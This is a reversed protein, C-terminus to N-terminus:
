PPDVLNVSRQLSPATYKTSLCKFAKEKPVFFNFRVLHFLAAVGDKWNIKKGSLKTRPFYHIPLEYIRVRVKAIYATMEIEIGFRRSTLSMSKLLDARFLKYCTEM